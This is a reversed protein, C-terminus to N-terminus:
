RFEGILRNWGKHWLQIVGEPTTRLEYVRGGENYHALMAEISTHKQVLGSVTYLSVQNKM